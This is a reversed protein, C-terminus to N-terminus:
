ALLLEGHALRLPEPHRDDREDVRVAVRVLGLVDDRPVVVRDARAASIVRTIPSAIAAPLCFTVAASIAAAPAQARPGSVSADPQAPAGLLRRRLGFPEASACLRTLGLDRSERGGLRALPPPMLLVIEALATLSSRSAVPAPIISQLRASSSVPPSRSAALFYRRSFPRALRRLAGAPLRGLALDRDVEVVRVARHDGDAALGLRDRVVLLEEDESSRTRSATSLVALLRGVLELVLADLQRRLEALVDDHAAGDAELGLLVLDEGSVHVRRRVLDAHQDVAAAVRIDGAISAICMANAAGSYRVRSSTGSASTFASRSMREFCGSRSPLGSSTLAFITSPRIWFHSGLADEGLLGPDVVRAALRLDALRQLLRPELDISNRRNARASYARPM